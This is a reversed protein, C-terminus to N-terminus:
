DRKEEFEPDRFNVGFRVTTWIERYNEGSCVEPETSHQDSVAFNNAVPASKNKQFNIRHFNSHM